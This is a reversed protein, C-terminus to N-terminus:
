RSRSGETVQMTQFRSRDGTVQMTSVMLSPEIMEEREKARGSTERASDSDGRPSHVVGRTMIRIGIRVVTKVVIEMMVVIMVGKVIMDVVEEGIMVVDIMEVSVTMEEIETTEATGIMEGIAITEAIRMMLAAHHADRGKASDELHGITEMTVIEIVSKTMKHHTTMVQSVANVNVTTEATDAAVVVVVDVEEDVEEPDRRLSIMRNTTVGRKQQEQHEALAVVLPAMVVTDVVIDEAIDGAVGVEAEEEVESGEEITDPVGRLLMGAERLQFVM